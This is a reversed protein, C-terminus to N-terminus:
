QKGFIEATICRALLLVGTHSNKDVFAELPTQSYLYRTMEKYGKAASLLVPIEGGKTKMTLLKKGGKKEVMCKAIEVNGTLEAAFSLATYDFNDQMKVLKEKGLKVLNKVIHLHGAMVAVHLVTRGTSSTSFIATDDNNIIAKADNWEDSEVYRYLPKNQLLSDEVLVGQEIDSDAKLQSSYLAGLRNWAEKATEVDRIQSLIETGCALQIIHLAKANKKRWSDSVTKPKVGIESVFTVVGWLGQGILYNRVLASWNEYNDRTLPELVIGSAAGGIVAM